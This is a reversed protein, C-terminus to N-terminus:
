RRSTCSARPVWSAKRTILNVEKSLLAHAQGTQSILKECDCSDWHIVQDSPLAKLHNQVLTRLRRLCGQPPAKVALSEEVYSYTLQDGKITTDRMNPISHVKGKSNLSVVLTAGSDIGSGTSVMLYRGAISLFRDNDSDPGRNWSLLPTKPLNACHHGKGARYVTIAEGSHSEYPTTQVIYAGQTTCATVASVPPWAFLLFLLNM